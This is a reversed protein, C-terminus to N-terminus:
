HAIRIHEAMGALPIVDNCQSCQIRTSAEEENTAITDPVETEIVNLHDGDAARPDSIGDETVVHLARENTIAAAAEYDAIDSTSEVPRPPDEYDEEDHYHPEAPVVYQEPYVARNRLEDEIQGERLAWGIANREVFDMINSARDLYDGKTDGVTRDALEINTNAYDVLAQLLQAQSM